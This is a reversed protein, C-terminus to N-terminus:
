CMSSFEAEDHDVREARTVRNRGNSKSAYLAKDAAQVLLETSPVAIDPYAAVGLSITVKLGDVVLQEVDRRVREAVSMAGDLNTHPLIAIFEEGGYRCATDYKRLSDGFSKAVAQLVRDGQEHGYTDNFKKFHDIDFMMVAFPTGTRSSRSFENTLVYEMHRRNYLGTLADTTSLRRLEEELRKEETVDRILAASGITAGQADQIMSVYVRFLRNNYLKVITETSNKQKLWKQMEDRDDFLALFGQAVIQAASKGLLQEAAPNVLVVAGAGDTVVIGEDAGLIITTLKDQERRLGDHTQRIEATMVNFIRAMEGLEDHRDVAVSQGLDGQSIKRMAGMLRELPATVARRLLQGAILFTLVLTVVLVALSQRRSEALTQDVAALSTSMQIVGRTRSSAHCDRCDRTTKIPALFTLLREGSPSEEYFSVVENENLARLLREDDPARVIPSDVEPRRAYREEEVAMNVQDITRNDTFAEKGDFRVIKFDAIYPIERFHSAFSVAAATSGTMMIAEIGEAISDTLVALAQERERLAAREQLWGQLLTAVLMAASVAALVALTIKHRIHSRIARFAINEERQM